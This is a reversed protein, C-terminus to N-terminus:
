NGTSYAPGQNEDTRYTITQRWEGWVGSERERGGARGGRGKAVTLRNEVDTLRDRTEYIFENTDYDLNWM